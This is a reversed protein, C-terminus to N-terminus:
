ANVLLVQGANPGPTQSFAAAPTFSIAALDDNPCQLLALILAPNYGLQGLERAHSARYRAVHEIDASNVPRVLADNAKIQVTRYTAPESFSAALVGRQRVHGLLTFAQSASLLITISRYDDAVRCGLARAASPMRDLGCSSVSIAVGRQLFAAHEADLLPAKTHAMALSPLPCQRLYYGLRAEEQWRFTEFEAM